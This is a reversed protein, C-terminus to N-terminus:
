RRRSRFGVFAGVAGGLLHSLNSINDALFFATYIERTLYLVIVLLFTLPITGKGVGTFSCLVIFGFVVGSAGLLVVNEFLLVHVIGTLLATAAIMLCLCFQGYKEELIPGIILLLTVNTWVQTWNEHGFVHTFFRIYTTFDTFSSRYVSFFLHNASGDTYKNAIQALVCLLCFGLIVPSNVSISIKNNKM